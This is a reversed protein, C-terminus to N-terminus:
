IVGVIEKSKKWLDEKLSTNLVHKQWAQIKKKVFYKGSIHEVEPSTALYISTEAGKRPSMLLLKMLFNYIYHDRVVNTAVMGPHLANVTVRTDKLEEALKMTFLNLASKSQGYTRFTNFDMAIPINQMDLPNKVYLDSSVNVVRGQESKKLVDLLLQALLFPAFYNVAFDMEIGDASTAQKFGMMGANNILVDLSSFRDMYESAANRVSALSSLDCILFHVNPNRSSETLLKRTAEAKTADRATFIVEYGQKALEFATAKGIGSTAGTILVRKM